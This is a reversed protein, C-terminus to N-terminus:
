SLCVCLPLAVPLPSAPERRPLGIHSKIGPGLIVVEALPLHEVVSGGLHGQFRKRKSPLSNGLDVSDEPVARQVCKQESLASM